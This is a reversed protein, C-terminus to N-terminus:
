LIGLELLMKYKDLIPDLLAGFDSDIGLARAADGDIDDLAEGAARLVLGTKGDVKTGVTVLVAGGVSILNAFNSRLVGDPLREDVFSVIEQRAVKPSLYKTAGM